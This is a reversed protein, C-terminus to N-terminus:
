AGSNAYLYGTALKVSRELLPRLSKICTKPVCRSFKLAFLQDWTKELTNCGHDIDIVDGVLLSEIM